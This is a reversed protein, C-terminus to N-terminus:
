MIGNQRVNRTLHASADNSTKKFYDSFNKKNNCYIKLAKDGTHQALDKYGRFLRYGTPKKFGLSASIGRYIQSSTNERHLYVEEPSMWDVHFEPFSTTHHVQQLLSFFSVTCIRSMVEMGLFM